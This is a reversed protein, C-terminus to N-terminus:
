DNNKFELFNKYYSRMNEKGIPNNTHFYFFQPLDEDSSQIYEVLFKMCSMGTYENGDEDFDALDHDFSIYKPIGNSKIEEKFERFNRVIVWNINKDYEVWTVDKPNREDDIFVGRTDSILKNNLYCLVSALIFMLGLMAIYEFM